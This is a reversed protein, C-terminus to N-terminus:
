QTTSKRIILVACEGENARVNVRNLLVNLILPMGFFLRDVVRPLFPLYPSDWLGDSGEILVEFGADVCLERWQASTLFTCHTPDKFAFWDDGKKKHGRGNLAPVVILCVGNNKLIRNFLKLASAPQPIHELVHLSTIADFSGDPILDESEFITVQPVLQKTQSRATDSIDYGSVTFFKTLRRVFYGTGCGYDLVESNTSIHRSLVKSYWGLALRDSDQENTNYYHEDYTSM